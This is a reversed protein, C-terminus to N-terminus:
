YGHPKYTSSYSGTKKTTKFWKSDMSNAGTLLSSLSGMNGARRANKGAIRNLGANASFNMAEMEYDYSERAANSRITLADLEGLEATDQLTDLASGTDVEVGGAALVSRQRGKLQSVKTRYNAEEVEGRQIADQSQWEAIKRNNENVQAQYEYREQEARATQQQAAVKVMAIFFDPTCM